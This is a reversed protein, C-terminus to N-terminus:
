DPQEKNLLREVSDVAIPHYSPRAKAFLAKARAKGAPTRVLEGYLPMLYKRRGITTLFQDLRADAPQYSNRIAMQLWQAAVETNGADTLHFAADLEAMRDNALRAPLDRLFRLWEHTSWAATDLDTAKAERDLWRRAQLDVADFRKSHPQPADTPLGPQRLWAHLNVAEAKGPETKLLHERLYAEFDPTTISQFAFHDFYAKLFSDFAERGVQQELRLLFLAGKEYPVQTFGEDPDRGALDIHLIEVRAPTQKLNARLIDMGLTWEMAAREPGYLDEIIRRELYTTFGENLWFDRWTANTVLNGSWSHALEHAVLSVLSKDGALVTPTAFTLKPNEMGGFPFSPPLVLLDYREWRYPGYRKEVAEVMSETDSFEQAAKDLVGPEAWVGTRPGLEQFKLEGVALAILYSPISQPMKFSAVGDGDEKRDASMVATLGKPTQVRASYTVRVGPSDQCPIWSRAHIAESQTYLFPHLGSSTGSAGVWQLGSAGPSTKYVIQVRTAESPLPITLPAGLIPDVKGLQYDVKTLDADSSGASVSEITLDRTDLILPVKPSVGPRREISLTAKGQLQKHEFDVNLDLDIHTVRVQDPRAHSHGDRRAAELHRPAPEEGSANMTQGDNLVIWGIVLVMLYHTRM